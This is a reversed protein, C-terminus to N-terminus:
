ESLIHFERTVTIAFGALMLALRQRTVFHFMTEKFRTAQAYHLFIM